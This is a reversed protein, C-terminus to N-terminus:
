ITPQPISGAADADDDAATAETVTDSAAETDDGAAPDPEALDGPQGPMTGITLADDLASSAADDAGADGEAEADAAPTIGLADADDAGAEDGADTADGESTELAPPPPPTWANTVIGQGETAIEIL